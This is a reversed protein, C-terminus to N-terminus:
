VRLAVHVLWRHYTIGNQRQSETHRSHRPNLSTLSGRTSDQAKGRFVTQQFPRNQSSVNQSGCLCAGTM